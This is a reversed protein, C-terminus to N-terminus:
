HELFKGDKLKKLILKFWYTYNNPNNNINDLLIDVPTWKYDKIENKNPIVRGDYYGIYVHDLENETLGNSFHTNYRLTFIENLETNFGLEEFLRKHASEILSEGEKQHSCCSNTWMGGSHYKKSARKQILLNNKNNFILISFARHLLGSKHVSSKLETGTEKDSEDVLVIKNDKDM